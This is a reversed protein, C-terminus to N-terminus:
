ALWGSFCSGPGGILSMEVSVVFGGSNLATIANRGSFLLAMSYGPTLAAALYFCNYGSIAGIFDESDVSCANLRARSIALAVPHSITYWSIFEPTISAIADVGTKSKLSSM